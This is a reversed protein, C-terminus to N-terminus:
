ETKLKRFVQDNLRQVQSDLYSIQWRYQREPPANILAKGKEVELEAIEAAIQLREQDLPGFTGPALKDIEVAKVYQTRATRAAVEARNLWVLFFDNGGKQAVELRTKAVEIERLYEARTENPMLMKWGQAKQWNLESSRLKLEAYQLDLNNNAASAALILSLIVYKGM